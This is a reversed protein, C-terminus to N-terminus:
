REIGLYAPGLSEIRTKNLANDCDLVARCESLRSTDIGYITRDEDCVVVAHFAGEDNVDHITAGRLEIRAVLREVPDASAHPGRGVRRGLVLVRPAEVDPLRELLRDAAAAVREDLVQSTAAAMSLGARELLVSALAVDGAESTVGVDLLPFYPQTNAMTILERPDVGHGAGFRGLQDSWAQNVARSASEALKVLEATEVSRVPAVLTDTVHGYFEIARKLTADDIGGVIKPIRDLDSFVHGVTCRQVGYAIRPGGGSGADDGRRLIPAFRDRTDGVAVTSELIVLAEAAAERAVATVDDDIADYDPTREADLRIPTLVVIVQRDRVAEEISEMLVLHGRERATRLGEDLGPETTQDFAVRADDSVCAAVPIGKLSYKTALALALRDRGIVAIVM